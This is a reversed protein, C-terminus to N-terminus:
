EEKGEFYVALATHITQIVVDEPTGTPFYDRLKTMEIKLTRFRVKKKPALLEELLDVDIIQDPDAEIERLQRAHAEKLPRPKEVAYCYCYILEQSRQKLHSLQEGTGLGIKGQDVLELLQPMLYTLCIYRRVKNKSDGTQEGVYRDVRFNTGIQSSNNKPRGPLHEKRKKQIEWLDRYAWGRESPLLERNQLNDSVLVGLADDEDM